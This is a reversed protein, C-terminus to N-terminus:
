FPTVGPLEEVRQGTARERFESDTRVSERACEVPVIRHQLDM